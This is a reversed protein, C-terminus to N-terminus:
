EVHSFKSAAQVDRELEAYAESAALRSNLATNQKIKDLLIRNAEGLPYSVLVYSRFGTGQPIVRQEQVTYGALDVGAFLNSSVKQVDAVVQVNDASGSEEIFQKMKGSITGQLKDALRGKADQIAKDVSLQLDTSYSTTAAYLQMGDVPPKTFWDPAEAVSEVVQRRQQQKLEQQEQFVADPSGPQVTACGALATMFLVTTSVLQIKQNRM